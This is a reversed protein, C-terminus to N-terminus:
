QKKEKAQNIATGVENAFDAFGDPHFEGNKVAIAICLKLYADIARNQYAQTTAASIDALVKILADDEAQELENM